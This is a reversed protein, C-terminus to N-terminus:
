RRDYRHLFAAMAQRSVADAPEFSPKGAPNATGTSLGTAGMWRMAEICQHRVVPRDPM